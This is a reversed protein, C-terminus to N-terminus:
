AGGTQALAMQIVPKSVPGIDAACCGKIFLKRPLSSFTEPAGSESVCFIESCVFGWDEQWFGLMLHFTMNPELVTTDGIRSPKFAGCEATFRRFVAEVEECTVGPRAADLAVAM